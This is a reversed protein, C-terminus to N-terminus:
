VSLINYNKKKKKRKLKVTNESIWCYVTLLTYKVLIAFKAPFVAYKILLDTGLIFTYCM